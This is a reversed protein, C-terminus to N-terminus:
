GGCFRFSHREFRQKFAAHIEGVTGSKNNSKSRTGEGDIGVTMSYADEAREAEIFTGPAFGALPRGGVTAVVQSPDYTKM